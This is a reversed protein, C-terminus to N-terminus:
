DGYSEGMSMIRRVRASRPATAAAPQSVRRVTYRSIDPPAPPAAQAAQPKAAPRPHIQATENRVQRRTRSVTALTLWALLGIAWLVSLLAAAADNRMLLWVAIQMTVWALLAVAAQFAPRHAGQVAGSRYLPLLKYLLFVWLACTAGVIVFVMAITLQLM